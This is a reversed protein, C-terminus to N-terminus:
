TPDYLCLLLATQPAHPSKAFRKVCCIELINLGIDQLRSTRPIMFVWDSLSCPAISNQDGPLAVGAQVGKQKQHRRFLRDTELTRNQVHHASTSIHQHPPCKRANMTTLSTLESTRSYLNVQIDWLLKAQASFFCTLLLHQFHQRFPEIPLCFPPQYRGSSCTTELRILSYPSTTPLPHGKVSLGEQFPHTM